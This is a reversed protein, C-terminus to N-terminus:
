IKGMWKLAFFLMGCGSLFGIGYIFLIAHFTM